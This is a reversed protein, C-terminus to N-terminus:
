GLSASRGAGRSAGIEPPYKTSFVQAEVLHRSPPSPETVSGGQLECMAREGALAQSVAVGVLIALLM